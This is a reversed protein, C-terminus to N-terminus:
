CRVCKLDSAKKKKQCVCIVDTSLCSIEVNMKVEVLGNKESKEEGM